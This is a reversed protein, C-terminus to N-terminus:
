TESEAAQNAEDEDEAANAADSLREDRSRAFVFLGITVALLPGIIACAALGIIGSQGSDSTSVFLVVLSTVVVMLVLAALASTQTVCGRAAINVDAAGIPPREVSGGAALAEVDSLQVYGLRGFALKVRVFTPPADPDDVIDLESGAAVIEVLRSATDPQAYVRLGESAHFADVLTAGCAACYHNSAPNLASCQGCYILGARSAETSGTQEGPAARFQRDRDGGPPRGAPDEDPVRWREQQTRM